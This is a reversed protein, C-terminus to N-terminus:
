EPVLQLLAVVVFGFFLAAYMYFRAGQKALPRVPSPLM